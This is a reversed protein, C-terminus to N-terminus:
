DSLGTIHNSQKEEVFKLVWLGLIFFVAVSLIAFKQSGSLWSVLGFTLPGLLTSTKEFLAYFGFFETKIEFPTLMTMLTRSLSQTAGLFLGAFGGAIFFYHIKMGGIILYTDVDVFLYILVLMLIWFYLTVAISKKIGLKDGISGFIFSGIMATLQVLIFFVALENTGFNLTRSAYIGSFFIITTVSDIYLFYALLFNRLNKYKKLHVLTDFVKKFGYSFYDIKGDPRVTKKEKLFLLLPVSFVLLFLSSIVFLLNQNNIFPFVLLVSILSGIYGVAYGLSSVKNYYKEKNMLGTGKPTCDIIVSARKIAEEGDYMPELGLEKMVKQQTKMGFVGIFL